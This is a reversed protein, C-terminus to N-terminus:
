FLYILYISLYRDWESIQFDLQPHLETTSREGLMVLNSGWCRLISPYTSLPIFYFDLLLRYGQSPILCCFCFWSCAGLGSAAGPHLPDRTNPLWWSLSGPREKYGLLWSSGGSIVRWSGTYGVHLGLLCPTGEGLLRLV